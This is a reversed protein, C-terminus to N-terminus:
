AREGQTFDADFSEAPLGECWRRWMTRVASELGATILAPQGIASERLRDRLSARLEALEPLRRTWAVGQAVFAEVDPAAFEELGAHGVICAGARGTMTDGPITLTPAGMWLSHLTTTGGTYPFTDLCIDVKHHLSLYHGMGTREHFELRQRDIGEEAFWDLLTVYQTEGGKPMAGLVLRSDPVARLLQSWAAIVSRNFKNLRNFSGFTVYGSQLAPLANVPPAMPHPRFPANAPLRVLKETFQGEFQQGPPLMFRDCFYYDMSELGTTGPYGM